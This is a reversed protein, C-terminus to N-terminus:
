LLELEYRREVLGLGNDASSVHRFGLQTYLHAAAKLREETLLFSSRYGCEKMFDMFLNLLKKGLGIGRCTDKIFFYRLQAKGETNKLIISGIIEDNYEAIWAREKSADFNEYFASLTQAVYIEFSQGFSYYSGHLYTIYGIDGPKFHTRIHIDELNM